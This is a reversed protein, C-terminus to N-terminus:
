YDAYCCEWLYFFVINVAHEIDINGSLFSKDCLFSNQFGDPYKPTKRFVVTLLLLAVVYETLVFSFLKRRNINFRWIGIYLVFILFGIGLVGWFAISNIRTDYSSLIVHDNM